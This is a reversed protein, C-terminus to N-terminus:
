DSVYGFERTCQTHTWLAGTRFRSRSGVVFATIQRSYSVGVHHKAVQRAFHPKAAIHLDTLVKSFFRDLRNGVCQANRHLAGCRANDIDHILIHIACQSQDRYLLTKVGAVERQDSETTRTRQM